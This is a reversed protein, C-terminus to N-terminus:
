GMSDRVYKRLEVLELEDGEKLSLRRFVRIRPPTKYGLVSEIFSSDCVPKNALVSFSAEMEWNRIIGKKGEFMVVNKRKIRYPFGLKLGLFDLTADWGGIIGGYCGYPYSTNLLGGCCGVGYLNGAIAYDKVEIDLYNDTKNVVRGIRSERYSSVKPFVIKINEIHAHKFDGATYPSEIFRGIKEGERIEDGVNVFPEVHLIKVRRGNVNISMVIDYDVKSFKNPRGVRFKEVREIVGSFPSFFHEQDPSSLDIAKVRVHSSFGSSFFSLLSGKYIKM